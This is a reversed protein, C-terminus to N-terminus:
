DWHFFAEELVFQLDRQSWIYDLVSNELRPFGHEGRASADVEQKSM